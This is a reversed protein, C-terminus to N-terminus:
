EPLWEKLRGAAIMDVMLRDPRQSRTSRGRHKETPSKPKDALQRSNAETLETPPGLPPNEDSGVFSNESKQSLGKNEVLCGLTRKCFNPGLNKLIASKSAIRLATSNEINGRTKEAFPPCKRLCSVLFETSEGGYLFRYRCLFVVSLTLLLGSLVSFGCLRVCLGCLSCLCPDYLAYLDCVSGVSSASLASLLRYLVYFGVTM